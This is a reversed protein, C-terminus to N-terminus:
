DGDCSRTHTIWRKVLRGESFARLVSWCKRETKPDRWPATADNYFWSQRAFEIWEDPRAQQVGTGRREWIPQYERNFLVARGDDCEWIGYPLSLRMCLEKPDAKISIPFAM